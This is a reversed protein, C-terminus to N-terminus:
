SWMKWDTKHISNIITLMYVFHWFSIIIIIINMFIGKSFDVIVTTKDDHKSLRGLKSPYTTSFALIVARRPVKVAFKVQFALYIMAGHLAVVPPVKQLQLEGQDPVVEDRQTGQLYYQKIKAHGKKSIWGIMASSGVMRGDKSFGIGVWGTTYLASVIITMVNDRNESYQSVSLNSVCIPFWFSPKTFLKNRKHSSHTFSDIKNGKLRIHELSTYLANFRLYQQVASPPFRIIQKWFLSEPDFRQHCQRWRCSSFTSRTRNFSLPHLIRHTTEHNLISASVLLLRPALFLSTQKKQHHISSSSSSSHNLKTTFTTSSPSWDYDDFQNIFRKRSQIKHFFHQLQHKM